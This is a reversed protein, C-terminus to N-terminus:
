PFSPSGDEPTDKGTGFRAQYAVAVAELFSEVPMQPPASVVRVITEAIQKGIDARATPDLKSRRQLFSRVLQYRAETMGTVDLRPM